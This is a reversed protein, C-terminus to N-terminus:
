CSELTGTQLRGDIQISFTGQRDRNMRHSDERKREEGDSVKPNQDLPRTRCLEEGNVSVVPDCCVSAAELVSGYSGGVREHGVQEIIFM